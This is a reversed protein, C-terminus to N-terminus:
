RRAIRSPSIFGEFRKRNISGIGSLKRWEGLWRDVGYAEIDEFQEADVGAAGGNAKCCAYAYALVDERYVKDYLAYFRYGPEEKAKAHLAAQLKQVSIPTSLNGLRRDRAAEPM